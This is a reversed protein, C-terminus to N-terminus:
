TAALVSHRDLPRTAACPRNAAPRRRRRCVGWGAEGQGSAGPCGQAVDSAAQPPSCPAPPQPPLPCSSIPLRTAPLSSQCALYPAVETRKITTCEGAPSTPHTSALCLATSAAMKPRLRPPPTSPAVFPVTPCRPVACVAPSSRRPPPSHPALPPARAKIRRAGATTLRLLPSRRRGRQQRVEPRCPPRLSAPLAPSPPCARGALWPAARGVLQPLALHRCWRVLHDM